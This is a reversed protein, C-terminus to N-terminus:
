SLGGLILLIAILNHLSHFTINVWINNSDHYIKAFSAGLAGYPIIFLLELLNKSEIVNMVHISGFILGSIIIYIWPNKFTDKLPARTMLEETIPAIFISSIIIYAPYIKLLERNAEENAPMGIFSSIIINSVIMILLGILWYSYYKKLYKQWNKKFDTFDPVIKRRYIIIFVTMIALEVLIYSLNALVLNKSTLFNYFIVQLFVALFFYLLILCIQKVIDSIIKGINMKLVWRLYIM